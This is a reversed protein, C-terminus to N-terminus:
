VERYSHYVDCNEPTGSIWIYINVVLNRNHVTFHIFDNYIIATLKTYPPVRNILFAYSRTNKM